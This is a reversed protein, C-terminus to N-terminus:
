KPSDHGAGLPGVPIRALVARSRKVLDQEELWALTEEMLGPPVPQENSSRSFFRRIRARNQPSLSRVLDTRRLAGAVRDLASPYRSTSGAVNAWVQAIDGYPALGLWDYLASALQRQATKGMLDDFRVVFVSAAGAKRELCTVAGEFDCASLIEARIFNIQATLDLSRREAIHRLYSRGLESPDRLCLIYRAKEPAIRASHLAAFFRDRNGRLGYTTTFDALWRTEDTVAYGSLRTKAPKRLFDGPEKQNHMCIAPHADLLTAVSTTGCKPMGFCFLRGSVRDMVDGM